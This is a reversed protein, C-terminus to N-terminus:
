SHSIIARWQDFSIVPSSTEIVYRVALATRYGTNPLAAAPVVPIQDRRIRNSARNRINFRVGHTHSEHFFRLIPLPGAGSRTCPVTIRRTADVLHLSLQRNDHLDECAAIVSRQGGGHKLDNIVVITINIELRAVFIIM